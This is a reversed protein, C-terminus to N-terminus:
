DNKNERERVTYIKGEQGIIEYKENFENVSVSDDITVKYQTEYETAKPLIGDAFLGGILVGLLISLFIAVIIIFIFEKHNGYFDKLLCGLTIACGIVFTTGFVIWFASWNFVFACAVEEAALIEVGTM